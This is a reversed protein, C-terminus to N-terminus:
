IGLKQEPSVTLEFPDLDMGTHYHPLAIDGKEREGKLKGEGIEWREREETAELQVIIIVMGGWARVILRALGMGM